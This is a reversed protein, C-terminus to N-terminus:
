SCITCCPGTHGDTPNQGRSLVILACNDITYPKQWQLPVPCRDPRHHLPPGPLSPRTRCCQTRRRAHRPNGGDASASAQPSPRGPSRPGACGEPRRSTRERVMAREFEAFSGLMQMMMRGAPTMTEIAETLSRFGAEAAEIKELILLLDKLSRSLRDLKWVVLGDGPRLRSLVRHLESRDWRSGSAREEFILKCGAAELANIQPRTNQDESKSVRAYGLLM